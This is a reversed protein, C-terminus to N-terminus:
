LAYGDEVCRDVFQHLSVFAIARDGNAFCVVDADREPIRARSPLKMAAQQHLFRLHAECVEVDNGEKHTAESLLEVVILVDDERVGTPNATRRPIVEDGIDGDYRGMEQGAINPLLRALEANKVFRQREDDFGPRRRSARVIDVGLDGNVLAAAVQLDPV